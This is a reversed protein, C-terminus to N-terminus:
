STPRKAEGVTTQGTTKDPRTYIILIDPALDRLSERGNLIERLTKAFGSEDEAAVSMEPRDGIKATYLKPETM